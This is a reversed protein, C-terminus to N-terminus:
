GRWASGFPGPALGATPVQPRSITAGAINQPAVRGRGALTNEHAVLLAAQAAKLDANNALAHKILDNLPKSHFLTWWDAQIDANAVFRQAQGGPVGATTETTQPPEVTYTSVPPATPPKFNPGVVCASALLPAFFAVLSIRRSVLTM